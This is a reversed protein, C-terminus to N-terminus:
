KSKQRFESPTVGTISKFARSFNSFDRFGSADAIERISKDADALQQCAYSIRCLVLYEKLSYGTIRKFVHSLYYRSIHHRAALDDLDLADSFDCELEMRVASVVMEINGFKLSSFHSPSIQYLRYLLASLLIGEGEVAKDSPPAQFERLLVDMFFGVEEKASSVDMVHSFGVPHFSFVTGLMDSALAASLRYPDLTLVYREYDESCSVIMHPEYNGIFFLSPATCVLREGAIKCIMEGKTVYILQYVNHKHKETFTHVPADSFYCDKIIQTTM